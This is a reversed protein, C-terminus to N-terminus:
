KNFVEKAISLIRDKDAMYNAAGYMARAPPNGHTLVVTKGNKKKVEIGENGAEGYFGWTKQSGKGQGRTGRADLGLTEYPNGGDGAIDEPYQEEYFVGTGFEIYCVADGEAVLILSNGDWYPEKVEVDNTGAYYATRFLDDAIHYGEDVLREMFEKVKAYYTVKRYKNIAQIARQLGTIKIDLM